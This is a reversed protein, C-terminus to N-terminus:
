SALEIIPREATTPAPAHADQGVAMAIRNRGQCKARYLAQDAARLLADPATDLYGPTDPAISAVGGSITIRREGAPSPGSIIAM